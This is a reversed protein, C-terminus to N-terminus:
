HVIFTRSYETSGELRLMYMGSCLNLNFPIQNKGAQLATKFSHILKGNMDRISLEAIRAKEVEIEYTFVGHNPSPYIKAGSNKIENEVGTYLLIDEIKRPVIRYGGNFPATLSNAWQDGVGVVMFGFLPAPANIASTNAEIRISYTNFGDNADVTFGTALNTWQLPDVLSLNNIRILEGETQENMPNNILLPSPVSGFGAVFITDLDTIRAQGRFVSVTGQVIVSDGEQVSYSWPNTINFVQIGGTKDNIFFSLGNVGRMNVGYVTGGIRCAVGLSDPQGGPNTGRIQGIRYFPLNAPTSENDIITLTFLSDAGLSVGPTQHRLAFTLVKNGDLVLNDSITLNLNQTSMGPSFQLTQTTYNNIASAPGTKLIAQVTYNTGAATPTLTLPISYTGGNEQVSGSTSSFQLTTDPIIFGNTYFIATFDDVALGDDSEPINIDLWRFWFKANPAVTINFSSHVNQFMTNGDMAMAVNGTDVSLGNLLSVTTWTATNDSLSDADLSFQFKLTDHIPLVSGRRWQECHYTIETSTITNGTSNIYYHGFRPALTQTQLSGLARDPSGIAGYSYTDGSSSSGNGARYKNDAYISTGTERIWWGMPLNSHIGGTTDLVNFDQNYQPNNGTLVIPGEDDIVTLTFLSDTGAVMGQSPHRLAFVYNQNGNSFLNDTLGITVNQTSVGPAFNLTQTTYNNLSAANGSKLVVKVSYSGTAQTQTINVPVQVSGANEIVSGSTNTFQTNADAIIQGNNNFSIVLDDFSLGDDSGPIDIDVFRMMFKASIPVNMNFSYTKSTSNTNGNLVTPVSSIFPSTFTLGQITVWTAGPENLSDADLSYQFLLTDPIGITNGRRWEEGTFTVNASSINLGSNNKFLAGYRSNLTNTTLSGLSGDTSGTSRFNYTDGSSTNGNSSRYKNDVNSSTGTEFISWGLPLNSSATTTTDLTNLNQSYVPNNGTLSIQGFV